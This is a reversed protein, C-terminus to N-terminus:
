LGPIMAAPEQIYFAGAAHLITAGADSEADLYWAEPAWPIPEGATYRETGKTKKLPNIRIGRLPAKELECLFAPLGSGLQLRMRTIFNEPIKSMM